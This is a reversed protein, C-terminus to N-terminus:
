SALHFLPLSALFLFFVIFVIIILQEKINVFEQYLFLGENM